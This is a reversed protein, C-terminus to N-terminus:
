EACAGQATHDVNGESVNVTTTMRQEGYLPAALATLPNSRNGRVAGGDRDLPNTVAPTRPKHHGLM